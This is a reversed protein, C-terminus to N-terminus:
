RARAALYAEAAQQVADITAHVDVSLGARDATWIQPRESTPVCALALLGLAEDPLAELAAMLAARESVDQQAAPQDKRTKPGKSM